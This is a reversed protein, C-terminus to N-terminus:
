CGRGDAKYRNRRGLANMAAESVCYLRKGQMQQLKAEQIEIVNELRDKIREVQEYKAQVYMALQNQYTQELAAADLMVQREERLNQSTKLLKEDDEDARGNKIQPVGTKGFKNQNLLSEKRRCNEPLVFKQTTRQWVLIYRKRRSM